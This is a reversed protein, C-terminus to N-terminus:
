TLIRLQPDAGYSTADLAIAMGEWAADDLAHRRRNAHAVLQFLDLADPSTLGSTDSGLHERFLAVRLARVSVPDHYAANLEGNGHMSYHHVNCSGVSAWEDDILMLKSHVYVPTRTGDVGVSAIGCLTFREHRALRGRQAIIEADRARASPENSIVPAVPLMTVVRIGRTLADDLATIIEPVDLYQHELYITRQAARIAAQYQHFNTKEGLAIPFSGGGSPPHALNYLDEHTTRQIQVTASGRAAPVRHPYGLSEVSREGWRGDSRDRESAENWRQVFNHCVDAVAPGALEINVDHNQHAGQHHGHHGPQVLSHPNLNIGGIFSTGGDDLADILWSKQHQCYGPAARDWRINLSPYCRALLELQAPSGWFANTRLSATEDDPRWCLLRVDVGRRAARELVNLASGRGRPMRFTSWMFTITAWVSRQASEIAACIREFAPEGDIWPTVTNGTRTPYTGVDVFPIM